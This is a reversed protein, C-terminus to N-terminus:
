LLNKELCSFGYDRIEFSKDPFIFKWMGFCQDEFYSGYTIMGSTHKSLYPGNKKGFSCVYVEETISNTEVVTGHPEHLVFTAKTRNGFSDYKTGQGCGIKTLAELRAKLKTPSAQDVNSQLDLRMENSKLESLLKSNCFKDFLKPPILLQFLDFQKLQLSLSSATASTDSSPIAAKKVVKMKDTSSTQKSKSASRESRSTSGARKPKKILSNLKHGSMQCELQREQLSKIQRALLFNQTEIEDCYSCSQRSENTLPAVRVGGGPIGRTQIGVAVKEPLLGPQNRM